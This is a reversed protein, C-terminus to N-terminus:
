VKAPKDEGLGKSLSTGGTERHKRTNGKSEREEGLKELGWSTGMRRMKYDKRLPPTIMVEGSSM